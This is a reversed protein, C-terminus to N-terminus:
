FYFLMKRIDLLKVFMYPYTEYQTM